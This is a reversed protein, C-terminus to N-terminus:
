DYVDSLDNYEKYGEPLQNEVVETDPSGEDKSDINLLYKIFEVLIIGFLLLPAFAILEESNKIIVDESKGKESM